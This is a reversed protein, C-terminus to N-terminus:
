DPSPLLIRVRGAVATLNERVAVRVRMVNGLPERIRLPVTRSGRCFQSTM